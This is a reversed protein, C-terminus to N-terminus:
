NGDVDEKGALLGCQLSMARDGTEQYEGFYSDMMDCWTTLQDEDLFSIIVASRVPTFVVKAAISVALLYCHGAIDDHEEISDDWHLLITPNTHKGCEGLCLHSSYGSDATTFPGVEFIRSVRENLTMHMTNM